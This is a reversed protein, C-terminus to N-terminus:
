PVWCSSHPFTPCGDDGGVGADPGGDGVDDVDAEGSGAVHGGDGDDNSGTEYGDGGDSGTGHDGGDGGQCLSGVERYHAAAFSVVVRAM